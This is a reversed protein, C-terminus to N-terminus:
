RSLPARNYLSMEDLKGDLRPSEEPFNEATFGLRWIDDELEDNPKLVGKAAIEGDLFLTVAGTQHRWTLGVHHWVGDTVSETGGTGSSVVGVWGVDFAM